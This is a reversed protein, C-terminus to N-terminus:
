CKFSRKFNRISSPIIIRPPLELEMMWEDRRTTREEMKSLHQGLRKLLIQQTIGIYKIIEVNDPETLAYLKYKKM